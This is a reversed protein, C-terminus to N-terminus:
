IRSLIKQFSLGLSNIDQTYPLRLFASETFTELDASLDENERIADGDFGVIVKSPAKDRILKLQDRTIKKGFACIGHACGVTMTDMYGETVVLPSDARHINLVLWKINVGTEQESTSLYPLEQKGTIDRGQWACIYRGDPDQIPMMIRHAYRGDYCFSLEWKEIVKWPDFGRRILYAWAKSDPKIDRMFKPFYNSKRYVKAEEPKKESLIEEITSDDKSLNSITQYTQAKKRAEKFRVQELYAILSVIDKGSDGCRWCGWNGKNASIWIQRFIKGDYNCTPCHCAIYPRDPTGYDKHPRGTHDLYSKYLESFDM